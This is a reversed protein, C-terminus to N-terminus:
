LGILIGLTAQLGSVKVEDVSSVKTLPFTYLVEPNLTIAGGSIPINAGLGGRAGFQLTNATAIEGSNITKSVSGDDLFTVGSPGPITETKTFDKGVLIGASPGLAAYLGFSTFTYTALADVTVGPLNMELEDHFRLTETQNNAGLFSFAETEQVYKGSRDEFSIRPSIAFADGLPIFAKAGAVIGVGSGGDFVCCVVGNESVTFQGTHTNFTPGGFVGILPTRGGPELIPDRPLPLPAPDPAPLAADVATGAYSTSLTLALMMASALAPRAFASLATM